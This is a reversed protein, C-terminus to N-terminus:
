GKPTSPDSPDPKPEEIKNTYNDNKVCKDSIKEYKDYGKSICYNNKNTETLKDVLYEKDHIIEINKYCNNNTEDFSYEKSECYDKKNERLVFKEGFGIKNANILYEIYTSHYHDYFDGSIDVGTANKYVQKRCNSTAEVSGGSTKLCDLLEKQNASGIINRKAFDVGEKSTSGNFTKYLTDLDAKSIEKIKNPEYTVNNITFNQKFNCEPENDENDYELVYEGFNDSLYNSITLTPYNDYHEIEEFNGYQEALYEGGYKFIQEGNQVESKHIDLINFGNITLKNDKKLPQYLFKTRKLKALMPELELYCYKKFKKEKVAATKTTIPLLENATVIDIGSSFKYDYYKGNEVSLEKGGDCECTTEFENYISYTGSITQKSSCYEEYGQRTNNNDCISNTGTVRENLGEDFWSCSKELCITNSCVDNEVSKCGENKVELVKQAKNYFPGIPGYNDWLTEDQPRMGYNYSYTFINDPFVIKGNPNESYEDFEFMGKKNLIDLRKEIEADIHGDTGRDATKGNKTEIYSTLNSPSSTIYQTNEVNSFDGTKNVFGDSSFSGLLTPSTYKKNELFELCKSDDGSYYLYYFLNDNLGKSSIPINIINIANTSSQTINNSSDLFLVSDKSPLTKDFTLISHEEKLVKELQSFIPKTMNSMLKMKNNESPTNKTLIHNNGLLMTNFDVYVINGFFESNLFPSCFNSNSIDETTKLSNLNSSIQEKSASSDNSLNAPYKQLEQLFVGKDISKGGELDMPTNFGYLQINNIPKASTTKDFKITSAEKGWQKKEKTLTKYGFIKRLQPNTTTKVIYEDYLDDYYNYLKTSTNLNYFYAAKNSRIITKDISYRQMFEVLKNDINTNKLSSNIKSVYDNWNLQNVCVKNTNEDIGNFSLSSITESTDIIDILYKYYEKEYLSNEQNYYSVLKNYLNSLEIDKSKMNKSYIIQWNKLDFNSKIFNKIEEDKKDKIYSTLYNIDTYNSGMIGSQTGEKLNYVGRKLTIKPIFPKITNPTNNNENEVKNKFNLSYDILGTGNCTSQIISEDNQNCSSCINNTLNPYKHKFINASYPNSCIFSPCNPYEITQSQNIVYLSKNTATNETKSFNVISTNVKQLSTKSYVVDETDGLSIDLFLDDAFLLNLFLLNFLIYRM